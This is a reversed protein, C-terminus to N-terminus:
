NNLIEEIEILIDELILDSLDLQVQTEEFNYDTWCKELQEIDYSLLSALGEERLQNLLEKNPIKLKGAKTQSFDQIEKIVLIIYKM